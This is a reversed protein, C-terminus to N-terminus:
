MSDGLFSNQLQPNWARVSRCLAREQCRDLARTAVLRWTLPMIPTSRRCSVCPARVHDDWVRHPFLSFTPFLPLARSSGKWLKKDMSHSLSSPDIPATRFLTELQEQLADQPPQGQTEPRRPANPDFVWNFLPKPQDCTRSSHALSSFSYVRCVGAAEDEPATMCVNVGLWKAHYGGPRGDWEKTPRMEGALQKENGVFLLLGTVHTPLQATIPCVEESEPMRDRAADAIPAAFCHSPVGLHFNTGEMRSWAPTGVDTSYSWQQIYNRGMWDSWDTSVIRSSKSLQQLWVRVWDRGTANFREEKRKGRNDLRNLFQAVMLRDIPDVTTSALPRTQYASRLLSEFAERLSICM